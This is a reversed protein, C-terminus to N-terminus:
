NANKFKAISNGWDYDVEKYDNNGVKLIRNFLYEHAVFNSMRKNSYLEDAVEYVSYDKVESYRYTGDELLAYARVRYQTHFFDETYVPFLMTRVFYTATKSEGFVVEEATGNDTSQFDSIYPSDTGIYMDSASIGTCEGHVEAVAYILGWNKVRQGDIQQEVSGVVRNGGLLPSIQYGEIRVNENVMLSGQSEYFRLERLNVVYGQESEFCIYITHKGKLIEKQLEVKQSTYNSWDM